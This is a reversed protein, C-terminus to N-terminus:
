AAPADVYGLSAFAAIAEPRLRLTGEDSDIEVLPSTWSEADVAAAQEDDQDQRQEALRLLHRRTRYMEEIRRHWPNGPVSPTGSSHAKTQQLLSQIAHREHQSAPLRRFAYEIRRSVPLRALLRAERQEVTDLKDLIRKAEQVVLSDPSRDIARQCNNRLQLREEATLSPIREIIKECMKEM